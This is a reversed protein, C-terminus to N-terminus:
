LYNDLLIGVAMLLGYLFMNRATDGLIINLAKGKGIRTMKRYTLVHIILYIVSVGCVLYWSDIVVVPGLVVGLVGSILYVKRGKEAGLKVILTEKGAKRDNDIDRYNNVILLTDIVFGCAISACLVNVDVSAAQLYYTVCVPVIGFFVLVLLDGLGRYSLWTTYLFCFFVCLAGVILMQLGGYLVLPLGCLCGALTVVGIARRMHGISIWGQACARRPGLRTEDDNGRIYDFYDNIFNADIQMIFAFLVCLFAPVLLFKDTGLDRYALALAIIVPVAAGTLTKPRAAILWAKISNTKVKEADM